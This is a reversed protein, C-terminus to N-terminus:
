RNYRAMRLHIVLSIFYSWIKNLVSAYNLQYGMEFQSFFTNPTSFLKAMPFLPAATSAWKGPSRRNWSISLFPPTLQREGTVYTFTCVVMSFCLLTIRWDNTNDCYKTKPWNSCDLNLSSNTLILTNSVHECCRQKCYLYLCFIQSEPVRSM